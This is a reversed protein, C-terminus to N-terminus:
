RSLSRDLLRHLEELDFPKQLVGVIMDSDIDLDDIAGTCVIVAPRESEPLTELREIFEDGNMGPMRMDVIVTDFDQTELMELAKQAADAEQCKWGMVEVSRRILIRVAPEDDVVLITKQNM